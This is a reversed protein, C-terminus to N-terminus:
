RSFNGRYYEYVWGVLAVITLAAGIFCMWIGAALGLVLIAAGAALTVPWWSWPSFHGMEADGDDIEADVRDEPLEGGQAARTRGFYFALFVPLVICLALAVTGTWEITGSGLLNWTTYVGDALLFFVAMIWFITTQARM